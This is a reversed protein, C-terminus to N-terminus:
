GIQFIEDNESRINCSNIKVMRRTKVLKAFTNEAIQHKHFRMDFSTTKTMDAVSYSSIKEWHRTALRKTYLMLIKQQYPPNMKRVNKNGRGALLLPTPQQKKARREYFVPIWNPITHFAWLLQTALHKKARREYSVPMWKRTTHGVFTTIWIAICIPLEIKSWITTARYSSSLLPCSPPGRHDHSYANNRIKFWSLIVGCIWKKTTRLFYILYVHAGRPSAYKHSNEYAKFAIKINCPPMWTPALNKSYFCYWM